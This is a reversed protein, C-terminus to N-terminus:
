AQNHMVVCNFIKLWVNRNEKKEEMIDKVYPLMGIHIHM